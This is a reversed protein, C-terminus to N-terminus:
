LIHFIQALEIAMIGLFISWLLLYGWRFRSGALFPAVPIIGSTVNAFIGGAVGLIALFISPFSLAIPLPALIILDRIWGPNRQRPAINALAGYLAMSIGLLSTGIALISFWRGLVFVPEPAGHSRLLAFLPLGRKAAAVLEEQPFLHFGMTLVALTVALPLLTGCLLAVRIASPEYDLQKCAIPIVLHYGFSCLIIPLGLPLHAWHAESQFIHGSRSFGALLFLIFVLVLCGTLAVTLKGLSGFGRRLGLHVAVGLVIMTLWHWGLLSSLGSWYAILLCFALVFYSVNFVLSGGVGMYRRFLSPLDGARSEVLLEATLVGSVLMCFYVVFVGVVAPFYGARGLALPLGLEGAGIAVGAVLFIAGIM